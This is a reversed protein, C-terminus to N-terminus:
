HGPDGPLNVQGWGGDKTPYLPNGHEDAPLENLAEVGEDMEVTVGEEVAHRLTNLVEVVWAETGRHQPTWIFQSFVTRDGAILTVFAGGRGGDVIWCRKIKALTVRTAVGQEQWLGAAYNALAVTEEVSQQSEEDSRRRMESGFLGCRLGSIEIGDIKLNACADAAATRVADLSGSVLLDLDYTIDGKMFARESENIEALLLAPMTLEGREIQAMDDEARTRRLQHRVHQERKEDSEAGDIWTMGMWFLDVGVMPHVAGDDFFLEGRPDFVVGLGRRVAERKVALWIQRQLKPVNLAGERMVEIGVTLAALAAVTAGNGDNSRGLHQGVLEFLRTFERVNADPLDRERLLQVGEYLADVASLKALGDFTMVRWLSRDITTNALLDRLRRLSDSELGQDGGSEEEPRDVMRGAVRLPLLLEGRDLRDPERHIKCFMVWTAIKTDVKIVVAEGQPVLDQGDGHATGDSEFTTVVVDFSDLMAPVYERAATVFDDKVEVATVSAIKGSKLEYGKLRNLIGGTSEIMKRQLEFEQEVVTLVDKPTQM